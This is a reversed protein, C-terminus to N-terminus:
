RAVSTEIVLRKVLLWKRKGSEHAEQVWFTAALPNRSPQDQALAAYRMRHVTIDARSRQKCYGHHGVREAYIEM